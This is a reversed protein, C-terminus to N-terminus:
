AWAENPVNVFGHELATLLASPSFDGECEGCVIWGVGSETPVRALVYKTPGDKSIDTFVASDHVDIVETRGMGDTSNVTRTRVVTPFGPKSTPSLTYTM